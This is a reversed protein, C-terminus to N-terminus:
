KRWYFLIFNFDQFITYGTLWIQDRQINWKGWHRWYREQEVCISTIKRIKHQYFIWSLNAFAPTALWANILKVQGLFFLDFFTERKCTGCHPSKWHRNVQVIIFYNRMFSVKTSGEMLHRVFISMCPQKTYYIFWKAIKM